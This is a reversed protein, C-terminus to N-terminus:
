PGSPFQPNLMAPSRPCTSNRCVRGVGRATHLLPGAAEGEAGACDGVGTARSAPWPRGQWCTRGSM